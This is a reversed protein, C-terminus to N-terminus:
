GATTGNPLCPAYPNLILTDYPILTSFGKELFYNRTEAEPRQSSLLVFDGGWAGLSKVKGWYDPFLREGVPTLQLASAIREEHRTLLAEFLDLEV